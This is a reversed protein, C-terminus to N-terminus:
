YFLTKCTQQIFFFLKAKALPLLIREYCYLHKESFLIVGQVSAADGSLQACLAGVGNEKRDYFGIEQNMM